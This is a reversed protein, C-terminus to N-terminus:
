LLLAGTIQLLCLALFYFHKVADGGPDTGGGQRLASWVGVEVPKQQERCTCRSDSAALLRRVQEGTLLAQSFSLTVPLKPGREPPSFGHSIQVPVSQSSVSGRVEPNTSPQTQPSGAPPRPSVSPLPPLGAPCAAAASGSGQSLGAPTPHLLAM